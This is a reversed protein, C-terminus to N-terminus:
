SVTKKIKIAESKSFEIKCFSCNKIFTKINNMSTIHILSKYKM